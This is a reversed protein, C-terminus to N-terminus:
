SLKALVGKNVEQMKKTGLLYEVLRLAFELATGPGQSTILLGDQVVRENSLRASKIAKHCVPHCTITKASALGHRDLITPAACIAGVARGSNLHDRLLKSVRSDAALHETGELGGPLVILDFPEELVENLSAEPVIVVERASKVPGSMTGAAVVDVGARRLIDIVAIAELEEFGPALLVLTRKSPM